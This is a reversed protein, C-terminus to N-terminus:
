GRAHIEVIDEDMVVHDMGVREGPYKASPGWIKAFRFNRVLRSHVARAVDLVTAGQRLVLPRDAVEGNPQKTYVRILGLVNFIAEGVVEFGKNRLASVPIVPIVPPAEERLRKFRIASGPLDAKNALIITPKYSTNEFIAKEVDDLTTEGYIRVLASYVRYSRLLAKVDSVTYGIMRGSVIVKIDGAGRMREVVVRGKPRRVVINAEELKRVVLRYQELFSEDLGVVIIIGDANRALGIIRSNLGGGEESLAPTDILQIQVDKYTLMGPQPKVTTYPYSAILPKANTLRALVSSKGSNPPGLLVMQAAGEKEVFFSYGGGRRRKREEIEERLVAMRRRAWLVLNETGKHKPVASLFEQLAALKEEPTKAEMVKIWKARAEAPLNTVM